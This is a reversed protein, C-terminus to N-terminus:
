RPRQVAVSAKERSCYPLRRYLSALLSVLIRGTTTQGSILGGAWDKAETMLGIETGGEGPAKRQAGQNAVGAGDAAQQAAAAAAKAQAAKGAVAKRKRSCCLFALARWILIIFLGALFTFISSLLFCYWKRTKLCEEQSSITTTTGPLESLATTMLDEASSSM